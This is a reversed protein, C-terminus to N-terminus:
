APDNFHSKLKKLARIWIMRVAPESKDLRQAIQAHSLDDFHRWMLVNRESESLREMATALALLQENHQAASQPGKTDTQVFAALSADSNQLLQTIEIERGADRSQTGLHQRVNAAAIKTLIGRLWPMHNGKEGRFQERNKWAEAVTQQVLDSPDVRARIAPPIARQALLQLYPRYRDFADTESGPDM